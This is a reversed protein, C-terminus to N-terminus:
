KKSNKRASNTNQNNWNRTMPKKYSENKVLSFPIKIGVSSHQWCKSAVHSTHVYTEDTYVMTHGTERLEKIRRLYRIKSLVVDQREMNLECKSYSFKILKLEKRLTEKSGTFGINEKLEAHINGLTPLRRTQSYIGAITRRAVGQDFNDLAM